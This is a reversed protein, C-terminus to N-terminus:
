ATAKKGCKLKAEPNFREVYRVLYTLIDIKMEKTVEGVYSKYQKIVDDILKKFPTHLYENFIKNKKVGNDSRVYEALKEEVEPTWYEKM